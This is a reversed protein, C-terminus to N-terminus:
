LELALMEDNLFLLGVDITSSQGVPAAKVKLISRTNNEYFSTTTIATSLSIEQIDTDKTIFVRGSSKHIVVSTLDTGNSLKLLILGTTNKFKSASAFTSPITIRNGLDDYLRLRMQTGSISYEATDVDEIFDLASSSSALKRSSSSSTTALYSNVIFDDNVSNNDDTGVEDSSGLTGSDVPQSTAATLQKKAGFSSQM